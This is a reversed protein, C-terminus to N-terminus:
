TTLAKDFKKNDSIIRDQLKQQWCMKSERIFDEVDVGEDILDSILDYLKTTM